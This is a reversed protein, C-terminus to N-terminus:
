GRVGELWLMHRALQGAPGPHAVRAKLAVRGDTGASRLSQAARVAVEWTDDLHSALRAVHDGAGSWDRLAGAAAARVRADRHDLTAIVTIAATEDLGIRGLAELAAAQGEPRADRVLRCLTARSRETGCIALARAYSVAHAPDVATLELLFPEAASGFATLAAMRRGHPLTADHLRVVVAPLAAPDQLDAVADLAASRVDLHPDDLAAVVAATQDRVQLLGVVHLAVARRWSLRSELYRDVIPVFSMAKVIVRTQAIRHPDRDDILPRILLRAILLRHRPPGSALAQRARADGGLAADVLPLYSRELAGRRMQLLGIVAREVLVVILLAGSVAIATWVLASELGAAGGQLITRM